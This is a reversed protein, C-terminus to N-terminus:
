VSFHAVFISITRFHPSFTAVFNPSFFAFINHVHQSFYLFCIISFQVFLFQFNSSHNQSFPAFLFAFILRFVHSFSVFFDFCHRFESSCIHSFKPSFLFSFKAFLRGRFFLIQNCFAFIIRFFARVTQSFFCAFSQRAIKHFICSFYHLFSALCTAFNAFCSSFCASIKCFCFIVFFTGILKRFMPRFFLFPVFILRVCSASFIRFAFSCKQSFTEFFFSAFM